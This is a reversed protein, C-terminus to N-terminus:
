PAIVWALAGLKVLRPAFLAIAVLAVAAAILGFTLATDPWGQLSAEARRILPNM